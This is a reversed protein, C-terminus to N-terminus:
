IITSIQTHNKFTFQGLFEKLIYLVVICKNDATVSWDILEGIETQSDCDLIAQGSHIPENIELEYVRVQHKTTSRYHMRAIIEQGKYCGKTFSITENLHLDLRHPLFMGQTEPYISFQGQALRLNHWSLSGLFCKNSSHYEVLQQAFLKEAIFVYMNHGLHYACYDTNYTLGHVATPLFNCQPLLDQSNQLLFGLLVLDNNKSVSIRSLSAAKKLTNMTSDLLDMESILKYGNWLVVDMLNLVRGKLDCQAGQIMHVDSIIKLDCTLQGQLFDSSKEGHLELVGLHSLDFLYNTNAKFACDSELSDFISFDRNNIKFFSPNLM